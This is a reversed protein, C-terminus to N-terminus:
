RGRPSDGGGGAETGGDDVELVLEARATEHECIQKVAAVVIECERGVDLLM